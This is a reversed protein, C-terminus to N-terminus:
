FGRKHNLAIINAMLRYAGSVGAPLERFFVLGTYVFVGKGYGGIILSGKQDAENPDHMSFIAHYNSDTQGAFYTGREQIWGDFDRDSIKNPYNLVPHDPLLFNVKAQEDTVRANSISFPYPGIKTKVSGLNEKNYQVILNGGEHIYNMLIDYKGILWDHVDYARVGAVIADFQKLNAPVIDREKLLVVEYGMQQLAEPVKDGAGEIYGVKKGVTQVDTVIFKATSNKFYDIRPIHNYSITKIEKLSDAKGQEDVIISSYFVATEKKTPKALYTLTTRSNNEAKVNIDNIGTLSVKPQINRQSQNQTHVEFAKENGSTFVITEPDFQGTVAPLVTLPEYLEGRVEDLFKYQVPRTFTFDHGGITVVFQADYAPRGQPDGIMQQDKINFSGPSMEEELWYPQTIQKKDSVAFKKNLFYNKNFALSQNFAINAEGVTISKVNADTNLRNLMSINVKLSDGQAVYPNEVTAELWIGSCIEILQQVEKLKQTKWYGDKLGSIASYLNVLGTVSKEPSALSYDKVLKDVLEKIKNGGEVRDWSTVVGDLLDSTAKEGDVATFYELAQGRTRPLAAGQSKHQTRSEAAIEGYSKGLIANYIGVDIKMQDDSTTNINGFVFTNWLLRKPKWPQVGYKFQEPFKTPDGAALFAEHALVSAAAHQGHYAMKFVEPFRTIIVDPQFKRLVWVVDSLIKQKDWIKMAEDTSKTFGFDFARSFFQEAGDISRAALMEQTRILGLEVGQEDGILNQGGDGRTMSLYGTRYLKEKALYAILRSNEDDPHAAVYLVTGLVNLKKLRLFIEASNITQLNQARLFSSLLLFQFLFLVITRRM